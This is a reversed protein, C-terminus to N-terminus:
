KNIELSFDFNSITHTLAGMSIRQVGSKAYSIINKENINGSAETQIKKSLMKIGAKIQAPNMNDFLIRDIKLDKIIKLQTLTDVEVTIIKKSKNKQIVKKILSAINNSSALHNDKIFIEESLNMRNNIGGGLIVAYKQLDRLNPITKRTCCVKTKFKKIKLVLRNTKTAIGTAFGLFNLATREAKLISSKKGFISMITQNKKIKNGDKFKTKIKLKSDVALFVKKSLEIGCLVGQEKSTIQAHIKEKNSIALMTTIDGNPMDERLADKILKNHIKNLKNL